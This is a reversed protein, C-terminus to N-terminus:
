INYNKKKYLTYYFTNKSTFSSRKASSRSLACLELFKAVYEAVRRRFWLLSIAAGVGQRAVESIPVTAYTPEAGRDDSISCM